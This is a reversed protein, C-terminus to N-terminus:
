STVFYHSGLFARTSGVSSPSFFHVVVWLNATTSDLHVWERQLSSEEMEKWVGCDGVTETVCECGTIVFCVM